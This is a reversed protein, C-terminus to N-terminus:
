SRTKLLGQLKDKNILDVPRSEAYDQALRSFTASAVIIGRTINQNRMAEHLDRVTTEEIMDAVRIFWILRPLKRTNRWTAKPENALVEVGGDPIDKMTQVMYGLAETARTCMDRFESQSATLFDKLVDDQRLDQYQSLKDAIENFGPKARYIEEWQDVAREIQRTREYASGLFYRAWLTDISTPDKTSAVARELESIAREPNNMELYATGREVLSKVRFDPNKASWEFSNLAAAYDKAEKHIRGLYYHAEYHDPEFRLAKDLHQKADSYKKARYMIMGLQLQALGHGPQLEIAKRYYGVAKASKERREFLVGAQYYHEATGPDKQILLLYEKLAEELQNFRAFLEAVQRRFPIEPITGSFVGISNVAKFEMLALEPKSDALYARGLIYRLEANRPDKALLQKGAKIAAPAKKQKLLQEVRALKKPSVLLRVIFFTAIGIGVGLFVILVIIGM